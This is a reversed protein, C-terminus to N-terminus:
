TGDEDDSLTDLIQIKSRNKFNQSSSLNEEVYQFNHQEKRPESENFDKNYDNFCDLNRIANM